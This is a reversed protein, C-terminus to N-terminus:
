GATRTQHLESRARCRKPRQEKSRPQSSSGHVERMEDIRQHGVYGDVCKLEVRELAGFPRVLRQTIGHLVDHVQHLLRLRPARVRDRAEGSAPDERHGDRFFQARPALGRIEHTQNIGHRGAVTWTREGIVLGARMNRSDFVM